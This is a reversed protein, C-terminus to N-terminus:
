DLFPQVAAENWGLNSISKTEWTTSGDTPPFYMQEMESTSDASCNLLVLLIPIFYIKKM